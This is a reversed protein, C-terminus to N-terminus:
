IKGIKVQEIRNLLSDNEKFLGDFIAEGKTLEKLKMEYFKFDSRSIKKAVEAIETDTVGFYVKTASNEVITAGYRGLQAFSQTAYWSCIGFKRGETLMKYAAGDGSWDLNQAEDLIIPMPKSETGATGAYYWYDWLIFETILMQTVRDYGQTQFITITGSNDFVDKWEITNNSFVNLDIFPKIQGLVSPNKVELEEALYYLNYKDGYKELGIIIAEYISNLQVIGLSSYCASFINKVRSAIDQNTDLMEHEEVIQTYRKFPNIPCKVARIVNVNLKNSSSLKPDIMAKLFSSSYDIVVSSVQKDSLEKLMKQIFYTKGTGSKGVVFVHRNSIKNSLYAWEIDKNTHHKKGIIIEPSDQNSAIVEVDNSSILTEDISTFEEDKEVLYDLGMKNTEEFEIENEVIEEIDNEEDNNYYSLDFSNEEGTEEDHIIEELIFEELLIDDEYIDFDYYYTMASELEEATACLIREIDNELYNYHFINANSSEVLKLNRVQNDEKSNFCVISGHVDYLEIQVDGNTIDEQVKDFYQNDEKLYAQYKKYNTVALESFFHALYKTTFDEKNEVLHKFLLQILNEIQLVAKHVAHDTLGVKVECGHLYLTTYNNEKKMGIFILDDSLSGQYNLNKTSFLALKSLAVAGSVRVIEELSIPIWFIEQDRKKLQLKQIKSAAVVSLKERVANEKRAAEDYIKLLWEGNLINFSEIVHKIAEQNEDLYNALLKHYADVHNTVTLADIQRSSSYQDNYHIVEVGEKNLFYNFDVEPEIFCVWMSKKSFELWIDHDELLLSHLMVNDKNYSVASGGNFVLANLNNWNATTKLVISSNNNINMNGYGVKYNNNIETTSVGNVVGKLGFATPQNFAKNVVTNGTNHMKYFSLHYFDIDLSDRGEILIHKKYSLRGQLLRLLDKEDMEDNDLIKKDFSFIRLFDEVNNIYSFVEFKSEVNNFQYIDIEIKPMLSQKKSDQTRKLEICMFRIIGEFLEKDSTINTASIKFSFNPNLNFLVDFHKRFKVLKDEVIMAIYASTNGISIEKKPSYKSWLLLNLGETRTYEDHLDKNFHPKFITYPLLGSTSFRKIIENSVREEKVEELITLQYAVNLPHCPSLYYTDGDQYVGLMLLNLMDKEISIGEEYTEFYDNVSELYENALEVTEEDWYALSPITNRENFIDLLQLYASQIEGPIVIEVSSLSGTNKMSLYGFEQMEKEIRFFNRDKESINYTKTNITAQQFTPESEKVDFSEKTIRPLDFMEERKVPRIVKTFGEMSVFISSTYHSLEFRIDGDTVIKQCDVSRLNVVNVVQENEILIVENTASHDFVIVGTDGSTQLTVKKKEVKLAFDEKVCHFSSLGVGSPLVLISIKYQNSTKDNYKYEYRQAEFKNTQKIQINLTKGSCSEYVSTDTLKKTLKESKLTANFSISLTGQNNCEAIIFYERKGAGIDSKTKIYANINDCKFEDVVEFSFNSSKNFKDKMQIIKSFPLDEWNTKEEFLDSIEKQHNTTFMKETIGELNNYEYADALKNYLKSNEEIYKKVGSEKLAVDDKTYFYGMTKFDEPEMIGKEVINLVTANEFISPVSDFSTYQTNYYNEIISKQVRNFEKKNMEEKFHASFNDISLAGNKMTLSKSGGFISDLHQSCVIVIGTNRFQESQESVENRLRVLFDPTINKTMPAILLKNQGFVLVITEYIVKGDIDKYQFLEYKDSKYCESMFKELHEDTETDFYYKKGIFDNDKFYDEILRVILSYFQNLM